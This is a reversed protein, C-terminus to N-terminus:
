AIQSKGYLEMLVNLSEIDWVWFKAEKAMLYANENIGALSILINRNIRSGNAKRKIKKVIEAIDNETVHERKITCLWKLRGNTALINTDISSGEDIKQVEDFSIFKHKRGNLQIVDNKFLGFLEVIRSSLGKEFEQLFMALRKAVDKRLMEEELTEDLSFSLIKKLYVSQVWFCFLRDKFRYLSGNRLIVDMEILRNLIKSADRTQMRSSRAMDLQKNIGSALAILISVTKSSLKGNSVKYFLNSFYQNMVGTKKFMTETLASEIIKAYNDSIVKGSLVIKEIEDCLIQMYFPKNGTFSAIFDLYVQPLAVASIIDRLFARSMNADFPALFIKEFNGFLLSLKENLIRQSITNKSSLLLYMTDKQLMIKKALTGFPHKLPFNAINQFEALIIVCRKKSEEYISAPIDMMFSYADDFRNKEIDQLVRMCIQATKPYSRKLDELLLITDHSATLFPDSQLLQYLAAKIFRKACFEFPEIKVELYIPITADKKIRDSSLLNKILLTKEASSEGIIAINQRYGEVLSNVRHILVDLINTRNYPM